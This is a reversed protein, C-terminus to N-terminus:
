EYLFDNANFNLDENLGTKLFASKQVLHALEHYFTFSMCMQSMLENFPYDSKRDLQVFDQLGSHNLLGSNKHFNNLLFSVTGLNYSILFYDGIQTAYANVDIGSNFVLLAPEIGYTYHRFIEGQALDLFSQYEEENELGRFDHLNPILGLRKNIEITKSYDYTEIMYM